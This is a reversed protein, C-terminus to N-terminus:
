FVMVIVNRVVETAKNGAADSVNYKVMYTDEVSTEVLNIVTIQGSIDGDVDDLATAGLDMYTSDKEVYVTANGNLTIVPATLDNPEDNNNCSALIIVVLSVLVLCFIITHKKM